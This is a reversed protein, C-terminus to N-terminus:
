FAIRLCRWLWTQRVLDGVEDGSLQGVQLEIDREGAVSAQTPELKM